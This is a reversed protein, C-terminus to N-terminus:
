RRLPVLARLRRDRLYLGLWILVGFYVPFLIHTFLPDGIRVNTAVAGGLYGTLLIAGLVSTRPIVYLVTSILLVIGLPLIVSEPYGLQVHWQVVNASKVLKGGGDFLLFLVVLGSIVRGIWLTSKSVPAAQTYQEM